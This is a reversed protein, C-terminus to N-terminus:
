DYESLDFRGNVKLVFEGIRVIKEQWYCKNKSAGSGYSSILKKLRTVMKKRGTRGISRRESEGIGM